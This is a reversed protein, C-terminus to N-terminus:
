IKALRTTRIVFRRRSGHSEESLEGQRGQDQVPCIEDTVVAVKYTYAQMRIESNERSATLKGDLPQRKRPM